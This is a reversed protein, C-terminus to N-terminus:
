IWFLIGIILHVNNLMHKPIPWNFIFASEFDILRIEIIGKCIRWLINAPRLDMHAVSATTLIQVAFKIQRSVCRQYRQWAKQKDM